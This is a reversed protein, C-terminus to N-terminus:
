RSTRSTRASSATPSGTASVEPVIDEALVRGRRGVVPSLRVSYYGEGAGVDAVWMGPKVGALEIVRSAEGMRDRVDETSFADAVIPAVPRDAEPFREERPESRCAALLLALVM